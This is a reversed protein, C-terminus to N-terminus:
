AKKRIIKAIALHDAVVIDILDRLLAFSQDVDEVYVRDWWGLGFGYLKEASLSIYPPMGEAHVGYQLQTMTCAYRLEVSVACGRVTGGCVWDGPNGESKRPRSGLFQEFCIKAVKRLEPARALIRSPDAEKVPSCSQSFWRWFREDGESLCLGESPFWNRAGVHAIIRRYRGRDEASLSRYVELAAERLSCPASRILEFGKAELEAFRGSIYEEVNQRM